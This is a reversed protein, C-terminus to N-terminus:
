ESVAEWLLPHVDFWPSGNFYTVVMRSQLLEAVRESATPIKNKRIQRLEQIRELDLRLALKRTRHVVAQRAADLNVKDLGRSSAVSSADNVLEVFWRLIGGSKEILFDLTKPTFLDGAGLDISQLRRAAVEHMTQYGRRYKKESAREYLKVNPLLHSAFGEEAEGFRLDLYILMPVTYIIRCLPGALANSDLFILRAQDLDRLKDLGDVVVLIERKSRTRVDGLVLNVDNVIKQIQPEVERSKVIESSVGSTLRFSDSLGETLKQAAKEALSGGLASAGFCILHSALQVVDVSEDKPQESRTETLSFISDALGRLYKPDPDLGEKRAVQFVTSGLLYLLDVQNAKNTELNYEVDFYVVFYDDKVSELLRWLLSSKGSGRHGTFYMIPPRPLELGSRLDRRMWEIPSHERECYLERSRQGFLIEGPQFARYVQNWFEESRAM